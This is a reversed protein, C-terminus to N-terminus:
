KRREMLGLRFISRQSIGFESFFTNCFLKKKKKVILKAEKGVREMDKLILEKVQPDTALEELKMSNKEPIKKKVNVEDPIVVGVLHSENSDGYIFVQAVLSSRSFVAELYEPSFFNKKKEGM